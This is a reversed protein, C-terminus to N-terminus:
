HEVKESLKNVTMQQLQEELDMQIREYFDRIPCPTDTFRGGGKRKDLCPNINTTTEM